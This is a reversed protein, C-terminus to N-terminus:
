TSSPREASPAVTTRPSFRRSAPPPPPPPPTGIELNGAGQAGGFGGIQILFTDGANVGFVDVASGTGCADDSCGQSVLAGCTGSYVELITDFGSGCTDFRVDGASAATYSYWVDAGDAGCSSGSASTTALLNGIFNSGFNVPAANACDDNAPPVPPPGNGFSWEDIGVGGTGTPYTIRITDFATPGRWYLLSGFGPYTFTGAGLSAGGVLLEVDFTMGTQDTMICQFEDVPSAFSIEWGDGAGPNELSTGATAGGVALAGLQTILGQGMNGSVGPSTLDGTDTWGSTTILTVQSIGASTFAPDTGTIPGDPVFPNDFDLNVTPLNPSPGTYQTVQAGASAVLAAATASYLLTRLTM